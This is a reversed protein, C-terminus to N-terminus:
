GDARIGRPVAIEVTVDGRDASVSLTGGVHEVRSRLMKPDFSTTRTGLIGVPECRDNSIIVRIHAPQVTVGVKFQSARSHKKANAAAELLIHALQHDLESTVTAHPPDVSYDTALEWRAEIWRALEGLRHELVVPEAADVRAESVLEHLRTRLAEQERGLMQVLSDIRAALQPYAAAIQPAISQLQLSTGALTQLVTDHLDSALGFQRERSRVEEVQRTFDEEDAWARFRDAIIQALVLDDSALVERPSLLCGYGSRAHFPIGLVADVGCVRLLRAPFPPTAILRRRYGSVLVTRQSRRHWHFLQAAAERDFRAEVTDRPWKRRTLRGDAWFILDAAPEREPLWLLALGQTGLVKAAHELFAPLANTMVTPWEAAMLMKETATEQAYGIYALIAAVAGLYGVRVVIGDIDTAGAIDTDGLVPSESPIMAVLAYALLVLVSTALTGKWRWRMHSVVVLYVFFGFVSRTTGQTFYVVATIFLIDAGHLLLRAPEPIESSHRYDVVAILVSFALYGVLLAYAINWLIAPQTPDLWIAFLLLASMIVRATAILRDGGIQM